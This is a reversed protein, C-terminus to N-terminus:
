RFLSNQSIDIQSFPLLLFLTTMAAYAWRRGLSFTSFIDTLGLATVLTLAPVLFLIFRSNYPYKHLASAFATLLVPALFLLRQDHKAVRIGFVLGLTVLVFLVPQYLGSVMLNSDVVAQVVSVANVEIFARESYTWYRLLDASAATKSYLTVYAVVFSTLWVAGVMFVVRKDNATVLWAFGIGALVFIAPHSFWVAVAGSLALVWPRTKHSYLLLLGLAIAVDLSYQKTENAYYILWNSSVFLGLAIPLAVPAVRRVLLWFLFISTIGALLPILRMSYTSEGFLMLSLKSLWLFGVPAAQVHDLPALLEIFSRHVLNDILALEDGWFPRNYLYQGLRTVVGVVLLAWTITKVDIGNLDTDSFGLPHGEAKM